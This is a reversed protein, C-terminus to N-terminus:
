VCVNTAGMKPQVEFDNSVDLSLELYERLVPIEKSVRVMLTQLDAGTCHGHYVEFDPNRQDENLSHSADASAITMLGALESSPCKGRVFKVLDLVEEPLIGARELGM